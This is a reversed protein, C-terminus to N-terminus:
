GRAALVARLRRARRILPTTKCDGWSTLPFSAGFSSAASSPRAQAPRDFRAAWDCASGSRVAASAPGGDGAGGSVRDITRGALLVGGTLMGGERVDVIGGASMDVGPAPRQGASEAGTGWTWRWRRAAQGNKLACCDCRWLRGPWPRGLARAAVVAHAVGKEGNSFAVGEAARRLRVDPGVVGVVMARTTRLEFVQEGDEAPLGVFLLPRSALRREVHVLDDHHRVGVRAPRHLYGQGVVGSAQGSSALRSKEGVWTALSCSSIRRPRCRCKVSAREFASPPM